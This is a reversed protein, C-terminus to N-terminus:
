AQEIIGDEENSGAEDDLECVQARCIPCTANLLLWEDVCKQHFHHRKDCPLLRLEEEEEYQTLCITCQEEGQNFMGARYKVTPLKSLDAETAGQPGQSVLAIRSLVRILCPLCFCVFPLMILVVICPLFIIIFGIYILVASLYYITPATNMCTDAAKFLWFNGMVLWIVGFNDVPTKIRHLLRGHDSMQEPDSANEWKLGWAVYVSASLRIVQVIVWTHLNMDCSESNWKVLLIIVAAFIQPINLISVAYAHYRYSADSAQERGNQLVNLRVNAPEPNLLGSSSSRLLRPESTIPIDLHIETRTGGRGNGTSTRGISEFGQNASNPLIPTLPDDSFNNQSDM